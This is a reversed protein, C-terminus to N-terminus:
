WNPELEDLRELVFHWFHDCIFLILYTDYWMYMRIGDWWELWLLESCQAIRLGPMTRQVAKQQDVNHHVQVAFTSVIWSVPLEPVESRPFSQFVQLHCGFNVGDSSQSLWSQCLLHHWAFWQSSWAWAVFALSTCFDVGNGSPYLYFASAMQVWRSGVTQLRLFFVGHKSNITCLIQFRWSLANGDFEPSTSGFLATGRYSVAWCNEAWSIESASMWLDCTTMMTSVSPNCCSGAGQALGLMVGLHAWDVPGLGRALTVSLVICFPIKFCLVRNDDQELYVALAWAISCDQLFKLDFM